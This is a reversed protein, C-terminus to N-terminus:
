KEVKAFYKEIADVNSKAEEYGEVSISERLLGECKELRSQLKDYASKEIVEIVNRILWSSNLNPRLLEDGDKLRAYYRVGRNRNKAELLWFERPAKNDTTM